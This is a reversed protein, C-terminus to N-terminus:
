PNNKSKEARALEVWSQVIEVPRDLITSLEIPDEEALDEISKIGLDFFVRVDELDIKPLTVLLGGIGKEQKFKCQPCLLVEMTMMAGCNLCIKTQFLSPLVLSWRRDEIFLDPGAGQQLLKRARSRYIVGSILFLLSSSISLVESFGLVYGSHVIPLTADVILLAIGVFISFTGDRNLNRPTTTRVM